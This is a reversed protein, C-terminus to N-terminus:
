EMALWKWLPIYKVEGSLGFWQAQEVKETDETLLILNDCRLERAAKLLGRIERELTKPHDLKQCVQILSEIELGRRVVFDVESQASDKWFFIDSDGALMKSWLKIAVLNEYLRGSDEGTRFGLTVAMGPDVAYIKKNSSVQERVKYSFRPLSFFLFAEELFKIYKKISNASKVGAINSITRFSYEKAVNSFLYVALDEIGQVARIRHRKVIDKYLVANVLTRLYSARDLEQLLPEPFGGTRSYEALTAKYEPLTPTGPLLKLRERYSFPLLPISIHRGTLHTALESSLLNSNSGTVILQRGQRQLRNVLLEWRPLNQVEDLLLTKPSSYVTDAAKILLDYDHIDLLREDDFNIYGGGGEKRLMNMSLFSKGARRPGIVVRALSGTDIDTNVDREVYRKHDHLEMERRQTEIIDRVLSFGIDTNMICM